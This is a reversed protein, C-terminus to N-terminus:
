WDVGTCHTISRCAECPTVFRVGLREVVLNRASWEVGTTAFFYSDTARGEANFNVVLEGQRGVWSPRQFRRGPVWGRAIYRDRSRYSVIGDHCGYSAGVLAEVENLTM